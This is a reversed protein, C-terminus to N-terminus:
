FDWKKLFEKEDLTPKVVYPQISHVLRVILKFIKEISLYDFLKQYPKSEFDNKNFLDVILSNIKNEFEDYSSFDGLEQFSSAPSTKRYNKFWDLSLIMKYTTQYFDLKKDKEPVIEDPIDEEDYSFNADADPFAGLPDNDVDVPNPPVDGDYPDYRSAEDELELQHEEEYREKEEEWEYQERAADQSIEYGTNVLYTVLYLIDELSVYDFLKQTQSDSIEIEDYEDDLVCPLIIIGPYCLSKVFYSVQDPKILSTRRNGNEKHKSYHILTIEGIEQLSSVPPDKRYNKFDHSLYNKYRKRVDSIEIISWFDMVVLKM